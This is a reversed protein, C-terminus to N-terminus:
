RVPKSTGPHTGTIHRFTTRSKRVAYCTAVAYCTSCILHCKIGRTKTHQTPAPAGVRMASSKVRGIRRFTPKRLRPARLWKGFKPLVCVYWGCRAGVWRFRTTSPVLARYACRKATCCRPYFRHTAHHMRPQLPYANTFRQPPPKHPHHATRTHKAPTRALPICRPARPLRPPPLFTRQAQPPPTRTCLPLIRM